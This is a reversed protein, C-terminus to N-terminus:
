HAEEAELSFSRYSFDMALQELKYSQKGFHVSDQISDRVNEDEWSDISIYHAPDLNDKFLRIPGIAGQQSIMWGAFVKWTALFDNDRGRKVTWNRITYAKSM